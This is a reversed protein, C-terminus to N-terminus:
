ATKVKATATCLKQIGFALGVLSCLLMPLGLLPRMVCWSISVVLMVSPLGLSLAIAMLACGVIESVANGLFGLASGLLPVFRFWDFFEEVVEALKQIPCLFLFIGLPALIAGVLRFIWTQVMNNHEAESIVDEPSQPYDKASFLDVDTVPCLWFAPAKWPMTRVQQEVMGSGKSRGLYSGHTASSKYYSIRLCGVKETNCTHVVHGLLYGEPSAEEAYKWEKWASEQYYDEFEDWTYLKGDKARRRAVGFSGTSKLAIPESADVKSLFRSLDFAGARLTPATLTRSSMTFTPNSRFGAGCGDRLAERAAAVSWARFNRSDIPSDRWELNYTYHDVKYTKGGDKREETKRTEVCQLMQVDQRVKVAKVSFAGDLWSVFDKSERLPLSEEAFPCSFYIAGSDNPAGGCGVEEYVKAVKTLAQQTCVTSQENKALMILSGWYMIIGLCSICLSGCLKSWPGQRRVERAEVYTNGQQM